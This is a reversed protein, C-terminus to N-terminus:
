YQELLEPVIIRDFSRLADGLNPPLPNMHMIHVHAVKDGARRRREVAADILNRQYISAGGGHQREDEFDTWNYYLIKLKQM